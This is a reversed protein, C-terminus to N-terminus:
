GVTLAGMSALPAVPTSVNFFHRATLSVQIKLTSKQTCSTRREFDLVAGGEWNDRGEESEAWSRAEQPLASCLSWVPGEAAEAATALVVAWLCSWPVRCRAKGGRVSSSSPVAEGRSRVGEIGKVAKSWWNAGAAQRKLFAEAWPIRDGLCNIM